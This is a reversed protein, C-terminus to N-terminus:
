ELVFIMFVFFASSCHEEAKKLIFFSDLVHKQIGV